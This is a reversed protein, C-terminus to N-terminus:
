YTLHRASIVEIETMEDSQVQRDEIDIEDVAKDLDQDIIEIQETKEAARVEEGKNKLNYSRKKIAM